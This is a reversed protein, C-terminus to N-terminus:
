PTERSGAAAPHADLWDMALREAHAISDKTMGEAFTILNEEAFTAGGMSAVKSWMYAQVPDPSVGNGYKYMFGLNSQAATNGQEAALRWWRVATALDKEVGEGFGYLLGLYFQAMAHGNKALPTFEELAKKFDNEQYAALGGKFDARAVSSFFVLFILLTFSIRVM